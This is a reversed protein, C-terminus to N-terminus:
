TAPRSAPGPSAAVRGAGYECSRTPVSSDRRDSRLWRGDRQAPAPKRARRRRGSRRMFARRHLDPTVPVNSPTNGDGLGLDSSERGATCRRAPPACLPIKGPDRPTVLLILLGSAVAMGALLAFAVRYSGMADFLFGALAPGVSSGIMFVTSLVAIAKVMARPGLCQKALVPVSVLMGGQCPGYVVAFLLMTPVDKIVFTLLIGAAAVFWCIAAGTTSLRDLLWGYGLKGGNSMLMMFSFALAAVEPGLNADKNIFIALHAAMGHDVAGVLFVMLALLLFSRSWRVAGFDPADEVLNAADNDRKVSAPVERAAWLFFPIALAWIGISMIAATARWGFREALLHTLIPVIVGATSTGMLAAGIAVGQRKNFWHSLFIKMGVTTGLASVGLLIGVLYFITLSHVFLMMLLAVGTMVACSVTVRRVGFAEVAYGTCFAAVAGAAFKLSSVLSVEGRTWGTDEVINAYLIPIMMAPIGVVSFYVLFAAAVNWWPNRTKVTTGILEALLVEPGIHRAIRYLTGRTLWGSNQNRCTERARAAVVRSKGAFADRRHAYARAVRAHGRTRRHPDRASKCAPRNRSLRAPDFHRARRRYAGARHRAALSRFAARVEDGAGVDNQAVLDRLGSGQAVAILPFDPIACWSLAGVRDLEHGRRHIACLDGRALTEVAIMPDDSEVTGIAFEADGALLADVLLGPALDLLAVEIADHAEAFERLIPPLLMAAVAATAAFRVRGRDLEALARLTTNFRGVERLASEALWLVDQAAATPTVRRTTRDFLRAGTRDELERLLVSIASQTLGMERGVTTLNGRRYALVFAELQRLTPNVLKM